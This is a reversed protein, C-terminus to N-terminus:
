SGGPIMTEPAYYPEDGVYLWGFRRGYFDTNGYREDPLIYIKKGEEVANDILDQLQKKEPEGGSDLEKANYGLIRLRYVESGPLRNGPVSFDITDGDIVRRPYIVEAAPNLEGEETILPVPEDPTWDFEGLSKGWAQNWLTEVPQHEFGPQQFLRGFRAVAEERMEIWSPDDAAKRRLTEDIWLLSQKKEFVAGKGNAAAAKFLNGLQQSTAQTGASRPSLYTMYGAIAEAYVPNELTDRTIATAVHRYIEAMEIRSDRNTVFAPRELTIGVAKAMKVMQETLEPLPYGEEFDDRLAERTSPMNEGWARDKSPLSFGSEDEEPPVILDITEKLVGYNTWLDKASTYPLINKDSLIKAIVEMREKTADSVINDWRFDNVSKAATRYLNGATRARASAVTGVITKLLDHQTVPEIMGRERMNQHRRLETTSGGSRYPTDTEGVLTPNNKAAKSWQWMSVLNVALGPHAAVLADREVDDLDFFRTRAWNAAAKEGRATNLDMYSPIELGMWEASNVWVENLEDGTNDFKARAPILVEVASEKLVDQGLESSAQNVVGELKEDLFASIGLEGFEGPMSALDEWIGPDQFITKIHRNAVVQVQADGITGPFLNTASGTANLAADVAESFRNAVGGGAFTDMLYASPSSSGVNRGLGPIFEGWTDRAVKYGDPDEIPDPSFMEFAVGAIATPIFGLGPIMVGFPNDGGHPLFLAPGLDLRELGVARAMRGVIPDEDIRDLDFDTAAIRSIFAGTKPNFPMADTTREAIQKIRPRNNSNLWGRLHPRSLAEKAWHGWMDAWPKGFPAVAKAAKGARSNNQFSYLTNEMEDIVKIEILEDVFRRSVVGQEQFMTRRLEDLNSMLIDDALNPNQQRAIDMFDADSLVKIGQDKYLKALRVSESQRVMDAMFGRRYEMPNDFLFRSVTSGAKKFISMQEVNGTVQGWGELVWDDLAVVGGSISGKEAQEAAAKKWAERAKAKQGPKLNSLAWEEMLMDYYNWLMDGDLGLRNQKTGADFVEIDHLRQAKPDTAVWNDFFDRGKIYAQFSEDTLLLGSWRQANDYYAPHGVKITDFGVGGSELMSRELQRYFAPYEQLTRARKAWREPVVGGNENVLKVVNDVTEAMHMGKDELYRFVSRYGGEHFIRMLEDLSVVIGTRPTFVKDMAWVLHVNSAFKQAQQGALKATISQVHAQGGKAAMMIELPSAPLTVRGPAQLANLMEDLFQSLPIKMDNALALANEIDKPVVGLEGKAADEISIGENKAKLLIREMRSNSTVDRGTIEKWPVLGDDDVVDKWEKRTAIHKRNFDDLMEEMIQARAANTNGDAAAKKGKAVLDDLIANQAKLKKHIDAAKVADKTNNAMQSLEKVVKQQSSIMRQLEASRILAVGRQRALNQMRQLYPAAGAWDGVSSWLRNALGSEIRRSMPGSFEVVNANYMSELYPGVVEGLKALPTNEMMHGLQAGISAQTTTQKGLTAQGGMRLHLEYGDMLEDITGPGYMMDENMIKSPRIYNEKNIPLTEEALVGKAWDNAPIADDVVEAVEDLGFDKQLHRAYRQGQALAQPTTADSTGHLLILEDGEQRAIDWVQDMVGRAQNTLGSKIAGDAGVVVGGVPTNDATYVSYSYAGTADSDKQVRFTENTKPSKVTGVNQRVAGHKLDFDDLEMLNAKGTEVLDRVAGPNAPDKIKSKLEGNAIEAVRASQAEDMGDILTTRKVNFNVDVKVVTDIQDYGQKRLFATSAEGGTISWHGTSPNITIELPELSTIDDAKGILDDLSQDPFFQALADDVFKGTTSSVANALDGNLYPRPMDLPQQFGPSKAIITEGGPTTIFDDIVHQVGMANTVSNGQAQVLEVIHRHAAPNDVMRAVDDASIAGMAGAKTNLRPGWIWTTPDLLTTLGLDVTLGVLTGQLGLAGSPSDADRVNQFYQETFLGTEGSLLSQVGVITGTAFTEVAEGWAAIVNLLADGVTFDLEELEKIKYELDAKYLKYQEEMAETGEGHFLVEDAFMQKALEVDGGALSLFHEQTQDPVEPWLGQVGFLSSQIVFQDMDLGAQAKMAELVEERTRDNANGGFFQGAALVPEAWLEQKLGPTNALQQAGNMVLGLVDTVGSWQDLAMDEFVGFPGSLFGDAGDEYVGSLSAGKSVKLLKEYDVGGGTLEDLADQGAQIDDGYKEKLFDMNAWAAWAVDRAVADESAVRNVVMNFRNVKRQNVGPQTEQMFKLRSLEAIEETALGVGGLLEIDEAWDIWTDMPILGKNNYFAEEVKLVFNDKDWLDQDFTGNRYYAREFQDGYRRRAAASDGEADYFGEKRFVKMALVESKNMTGDSAIYAQRKFDERWTPEVIAPKPAVDHTKLYAERDEPALFDEISM